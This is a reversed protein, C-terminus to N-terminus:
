ISAWTATYQKTCPNPSRLCRLGEPELDPLVSSDGTGTLVAYSTPVVALMM